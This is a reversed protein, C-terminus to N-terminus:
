GAPHFMLIDKRVSKDSALKVDNLERDMEKMKLFHVLTPPLNGVLSDIKEHLNKGPGKLNRRM